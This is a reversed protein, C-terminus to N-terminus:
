PFARFPLNEYYDTTRIRARLFSEVNFSPLVKTGTYEYFCFSHAQYVFFIWIFFSNEDFPVGLQTISGVGHGLAAM